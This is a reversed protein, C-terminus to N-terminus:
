PKLPLGNSDFRGLVNGQADKAVIEDVRWEPKEPSYERPNVKEQVIIPVIFWGNAITGHVIKGTGLRAEVTAVNDAVRGTIVSGVPGGGTNCITLPPPGLRWPCAPTTAGAGLLPVTSATLAISGNVAVWVGVDGKATTAHVVRVLDGAPKPMLEPYTNYPAPVPVSDGTIRPQPGYAASGDIAFEARVVPGIWVDVGVLNGPTRDTGVAQGDIGLAADGSRHVKGIAFYTPVLSGQTMHLEALDLEDLTGETAFYEQVHDAGATTLQAVLRNQVLEVRTMDSRGVVPENKVLAFGLDKGTPTEVLVFAFGEPIAIVRDGAKAKAQAEAVTRYQNTLFDEGPTDGMTPATPSLVYAIPTAGNSVAQSAVAEIEDVSQAATVAPFVRLDSPTVFSVLAQRNSASPLTVHVRDPGTQQVDVGPVDEREARQRILQIYADVAAQSDVGPDPTLTIDATMGWPVRPTGNATGHQRLSEFTLALGAALAVAGVAGAALWGRARRPPSAPATVQGSMVREAVAAARGPPPGTVSGLYTRFLDIENM